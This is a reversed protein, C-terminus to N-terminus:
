KKNKQCIILNNIKNFINKKFLMPKFRRNNKQLSDIMKDLENCLEEKTWHNKIMQNALM